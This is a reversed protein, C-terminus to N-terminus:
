ITKLIEIWCSYNQTAIVSECAKIINEVAFVGQLYTWTM